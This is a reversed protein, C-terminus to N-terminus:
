GSPMLPVRCGLIGFSGKSVQGHFFGTPRNPMLRDSTGLWHRKRGAGFFRNEVDIVSKAQESSSTGLAPADATPLQASARNGSSGLSRSCRGFGDGANNGDGWGFGSPRTRLLSIEVIYGASASYSWCGLRRFTLAAPCARLCGQIDSICGSPCGFADKSGYWANGRLTMGVSTGRLVADRLNRVMGRFVHDSSLTSAALDMCPGSPVRQTRPQSTTKSGSGVRLVAAAAGCRHRQECHGARLRAM